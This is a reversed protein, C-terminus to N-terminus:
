HGKMYSPVTFLFHCGDETVIAKASWFASPFINNGGALFVYCLCTNPRPLLLYSVYVRKRSGGGVMKLINGSHNVVSNSGNNGTGNTVTMKM